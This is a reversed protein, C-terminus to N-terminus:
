ETLWKAANAILRRYTENRFSDATHGPMLYVIKGSCFNVTWGAPYNKGDLEYELFLRRPTHSTFEFMYPEDFIVFPEIGVALPHDGVTRLTLNRIEPHHDFRGGVMQLFEFNEQFSIGNHIVLLSGGSSVYAIINGMVWQEVLNKWRDGYLIVLDTRMLTNLQFIDYSETAIMEYDAALISIIEDDVGKLPHYEYATYDGFLFAKKM